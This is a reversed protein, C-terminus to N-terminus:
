VVNRKLVVKEIVKFDKEVDFPDWDYNAMFGNIFNTTKAKIFEANQRYTKFRNIKFDKEAAASEVLTKKEVYETFTSM